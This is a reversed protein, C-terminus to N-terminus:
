FRLLSASNLACPGKRLFIETNPMAPPVPVAVMGNLTYKIFITDGDEPTLTRWFNTGNAQADPFGAVFDASAVVLSLKTTKQEQDNMTLSVVYNESISQVAKSPPAPTPQQAVALVCFM